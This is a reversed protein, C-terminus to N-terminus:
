ASQPARFGSAHLLARTEYLPLGVIASYSGNIRTVFAGARGQIGYGGAKGHWEGSAAYADIEAATLRKFGVRTMVTRTRIMAALNRVAIATVVRHARGSLLELCARADDETEAKPLIRRGVAVVTDAALVYGEAAPKCAQAKASALRAALERATEGSRPTEDLDTPCIEDPVLGMQALLDVRRPSASALILRQDASM